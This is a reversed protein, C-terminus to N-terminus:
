RDFRFNCEELLGLGWASGFMSENVQYNMRLRLVHRGMNLLRAARPPRSKANRKGQFQEYRGLSFESETREVQLSRKRVM